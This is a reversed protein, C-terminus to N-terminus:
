RVVEFGASEIASRLRAADVRGPTYEVTAEGQELSVNVKGVGDIAKLVRTVSQVCGGCTMGRIEITTTEM